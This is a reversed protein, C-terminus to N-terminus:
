MTPWNAPKAAAQTAKQTPVVRCDSFLVLRSACPPSAFPLLHGGLYGGCHQRYRREGGGAAVLDYEPSNPGVLEAADLSCQESYWDDFDTRM